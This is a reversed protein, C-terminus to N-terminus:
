FIHNVDENAELFKDKAIDNLPFISKLNAMLNFFRVIDNQPINRFITNYESCSLFLQRFTIINRLQKRCCAFSISKTIFNYKQNSFYTQVRVDRLICM